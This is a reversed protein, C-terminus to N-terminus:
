VPRSGKPCTRSASGFSLLAMLRTQEREPVDTFRIRLIYRQCADDAASSELVEGNLEFLAQGLELRVAIPAGVRLHAPYICRLGGASINQTVGTRAADGPLGVHVERLIPLRFFQRRQQQRIEDSLEVVLMLTNEAAACRLIRGTMELLGANEKSAVLRIPEGPQLLDSVEPAPTQVIIRDNGDLDRLATELTMEIGGPGALCLELRDGASLLHKLREKM